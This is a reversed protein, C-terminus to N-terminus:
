SATAGAFTRALAGILEQRAKAYTKPGVDGSQRARELDELELLISARDEAARAKREAPRKGGTSEPARLARVILSFAVLFLMGGLGWVLTLVVKRPFGPEPIDTIAVKLVTLPPDERRAEKETIRAKQGQADSQETAEPFGEVSLRTAGGTGSVVRALAVHPPLGVSFKVSPDANYPLQFRFQVDHRGPTFTGRIRYGTPTPDVGVDSMAQQTTFATFGEPLVVNLDQPVWATKGFNYFAFAQELQVRDDKLEFYLGTQVVVLAGELSTAIPLVHLVGRQGGHDPLRFPMLAFTAGDRMVSVRYAFSSGATLGEFRVIGDAGSKANVRKRNEGKAITNEVIGLTVDIGPLPKGAGDVVSVAITGDPLRPDVESVDPPVANPDVGEGGAGHPGGAGHAHPPANGEGEGPMGAGTPPHGSPLEDKVEDSELPRATGPASPGRVAAGADKSSTRPKAGANAASAADAADATLATAGLACSTSIALFALVISRRKSSTTM